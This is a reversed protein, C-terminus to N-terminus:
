ELLQQPSSSSSSFQDDDNDNLFGVLQLTNFTDHEHSYFKTTPYPNKKEPILNLVFIIFVTLRTKVLLLLILLM